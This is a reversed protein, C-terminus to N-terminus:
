MKVHPDLFSLRPRGDGLLGLELRTQGDHDFVVLRPAENVMGLGMRKQGSEDVIVIRQTWTSEQLPSAYLFSGSALLGAAGGGALGM